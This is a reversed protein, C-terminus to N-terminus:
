VATLSPPRSVSRPPGIGDFGRSIWLAAWESKYAEGQLEGIKKLVSLNQIPQIDSVVLQTL